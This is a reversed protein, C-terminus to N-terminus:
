IGREGGNEESDLIGSMPGAEAGSDNTPVLMQM